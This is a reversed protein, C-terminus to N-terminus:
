QIHKAILRKSLEYQKTKGSRLNAEVARLLTSRLMGELDDTPPLARLSRICSDVEHELRRLDRDETPEVLCHTLNHYHAERIRGYVLNEFGDFNSPTPITPDMHTLIGVASQYIGELNLSHEECYAKASNLITLSPNLGNYFGSSLESALILSQVVRAEDFNVDRSRDILVM